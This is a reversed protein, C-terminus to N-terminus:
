ADKAQSGRGRKTLVKEGYILVITKKGQCKECIGAEGRVFDGVKFDRKTKQGCNQCEETTYVHLDAPKDGSTSPFPPLSM